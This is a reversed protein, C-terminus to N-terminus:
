PQRQGDSSKFVIRQIAPVQLANEFGTPLRGVVSEADGVVNVDVFTTTGLLSIM